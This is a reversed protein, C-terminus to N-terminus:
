EAGDVRLHHLVTTHHRQLSSGIEPLSYGATRARKMAEKRIRVAMPGNNRRVLTAVDIGHEAAVQIVIADLENPVARARFKPKQSLRERIKAQCDPCVLSFMELVATIPIMTRYSM